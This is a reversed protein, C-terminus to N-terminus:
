SQRDSLLVQYGGPATRFRSHFLKGPLHRLRRESACTVIEPIALPVVVESWLAAVAKGEHGDAAEGNIYSIGCCTITSRGTILDANVSFNASYIHNQIAYAAQGHQYFINGAVQDCVLLNRERSRSWNPPLGFPLVCASPVTIKGLTRAPGNKTM